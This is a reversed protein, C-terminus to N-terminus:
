SNQTPQNATRFLQEMLRCQAMAMRARTSCQCQHAAKISLLWQHKEHHPLGLTTLLPWTLLTQSAIPLSNHNYQQRIEIDLALDKVQDPQLQHLVRNWHDWEQCANKLILCLLNAVWNTVSSPNRCNNSYTTQQLKWDPSIFGHVLNQWTLSAQAQRAPTLALPPTAQWRWADIRASLDEILGLDTDNKRLHEQVQLITSDWLLQSDLHACQLIHNTDENPHGWHPFDATPWQKTQFMQHGMTCLGTTFKTTWWQMSIPQSQTVKEIMNWGVLNIDIDWFCTKMAWYVKAAKGAMHDLLHYKLNTSIKKPGFFNDQSGWSVMHTGRTTTHPTPGLPRQSGHGDGYQM